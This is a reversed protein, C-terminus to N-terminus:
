ASPQSALSQAAPPQAPPQSTFPQSAVRELLAWQLKDYQVELRSKKRTAFVRLPMEGTEEQYDESCGKSIRAQVLSPVYDSEGQSSSHTSSSPRNKQSHLAVINSPVSNSSESPTPIHDQNGILPPFHQNLITPTGDQGFLICNKTNIKDMDAVFKDYARAEYLDDHFSTEPRRKRLLAQTRKSHLHASTVLVAFAVVLDSLLVCQRGLDWRHEYGFGFSSQNSGMRGKSAMTALVREDGGSIFNETKNGALIGM